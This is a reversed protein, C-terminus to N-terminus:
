ELVEDWRRLWGQMAGGLEEGACLEGHDEGRWSVRACDSCDWEMTFWYGSPDRLRFGGEPSSCRYANLKLGEFHMDLGPYGLGGTAELRERGDRVSASVHLSAEMGDALWGEAGSYSFSGGLEQEWVSDEGEDGHGYSSIGGAVFRGGGPDEMEFSAQMGLDYSRGEEHDYLEVLNGTGKFAYGGGTTCDAEWNGTWSSDDLLDPCDGERQALFVAYSNRVDLVSPLGQSLLPLLRDELEELGWEPSSPLEREDFPSVSSLATDAETAQCSIAAAAAYASLLMRIM